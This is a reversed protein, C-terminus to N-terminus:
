ILGGAKLPNTASLDHVAHLLQPLKAVEAPNLKKHKLQVGLYNHIGRNSTDEIFQKHAAAKSKLHDSAHLISNVRGQDEANV